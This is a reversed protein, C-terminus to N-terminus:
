SRHRLAALLYRPLQFAQINSSFALAEGLKHLREIKIIERTLFCRRFLSIVAAPVASYCRGFLPIDAGFLLRVPHYIPRQGFSHM